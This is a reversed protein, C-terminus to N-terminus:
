YGGTQRLSGVKGKADDIVILTREYFSNLERARAADIYLGVDELDRALNELKDIAVRIAEHQVRRIENM